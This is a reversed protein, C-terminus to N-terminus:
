PTFAQERVYIIGYYYDLAYTAHTIKIKIEGCVKIKSKMKPVWLEILSLFFYAFAIRNLIGCLRMTTLNYGFTDEKAKVGM